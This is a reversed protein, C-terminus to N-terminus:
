LMFVVGAPHIINYYRRLRSKSCNTLCSLYSVEYTSIKVGEGFEGDKVTM